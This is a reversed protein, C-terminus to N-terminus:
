RQAVGAHLLVRVKPTTVVALPRAGALGLSRLTAAMPHKSEGVELRVGGATRLTSRGRVDVATKLDRGDLRDYNWFSFPPIALGPTLAGGIAMIEGQGEPDHVTCRFEGPTLTFDIPTVFKPYGWLERGAVWALTTTVPLELVVMGLQRQAPTRLLDLLSRAVGQGDKPVAPVAIGVENYAGITTDRYEYSAVGIVARRGWALAPKLGREAVRAAAAERSALFFAYVASADRYIIPLGVPGASTPTSVQEVDLFGRSM